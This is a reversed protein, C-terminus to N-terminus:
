YIELKQIPHDMSYYNNTQKILIIYGIVFNQNECFTNVIEFINDNSKCELIFDKWFVYNTVIDHKSLLPNTNYHTYLKHIPTDDGPKYISINVKNM